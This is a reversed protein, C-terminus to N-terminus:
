PFCGGFLTHSFGARASDPTSYRSIFTLYLSLPKWQCITGDKFEMGSCSDAILNMNDLVVMLGADKKSDRETAGKGSGIGFVEKLRPIIREPFVRRGNPIRQLIGFVNQLILPLLERDKLEDM